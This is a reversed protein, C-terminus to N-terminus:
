WFLFGKDWECSPSLSVCVDIEMLVSIFLGNISNLSGDDVRVVTGIPQTINKIIAEEMFKVPLPPIQVWIRLLTIPNSDRFDENWNELHFIHRRM